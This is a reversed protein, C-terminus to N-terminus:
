SAAATAGASERVEDLLCTKWGGDTRDACLSRRARDCEQTVIENAGLRAFLGASDFDCAEEDAESALPVETRVM